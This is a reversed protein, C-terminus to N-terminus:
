SHAPPAIPIALSSSRRLVAKVRAMLEGPRFPKTIYADAGVQLGRIKDEPAARGTVMVIPVESLERIGLCTAFGDLGPLGIDLVVLSPHTESVSVLAEEGTGCALVTYGETDLTAGLLLLVQPDDEVVLVSTIEQSM